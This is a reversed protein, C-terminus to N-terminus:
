ECVEIGQSKLWAKACEARTLYLETVEQTLYTQKNRITYTVGDEDENIRVVEYPEVKCNYSNVSYVTTGIGYANPTLEKPFEVIEKIGSLNFRRWNKAKYCWALVGNLFVKEVKIVRLTVEDKTESHYVIAYYNGAKIEVGMYILSALAVGM